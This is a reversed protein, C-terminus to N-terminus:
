LKSTIEQSERELRLMKTELTEVKQRYEEMDIAKSWTGSVINLYKEAIRYQALNYEPDLKWIKNYFLNDM